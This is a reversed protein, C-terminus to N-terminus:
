YKMQKETIHVNYQDFLMESDFIVGLDKIENIKKLCHHLIHFDFYLIM